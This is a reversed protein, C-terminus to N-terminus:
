ISQGIIEPKEQEEPRCYVATKLDFYLDERKIYGEGTYPNNRILLEARELLFDLPYEHYEREKGRDEDICLINRDVDIETFSTLTDAEEPHDAYTEEYEERDIERTNNFREFFPMYQGDADTRYKLLRLAISALGGYSRTVGYRTNGNETVAIVSPRKM